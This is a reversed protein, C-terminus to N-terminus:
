SLTNAGQPVVNDYLIGCTGCVNVKSPGDLCGTGMSPDSDIGCVPKNDSLDRIDRRLLRIYGDEGWNPTWSNRVLWYNVGDEEGYGVAVVAHDILPDSANCGSYIGSEYAGFDADVSVAVPGKALAAMLDTYSNTGLSTYGTVQVEAPAVLISSGGSGSMTVGDLCEGNTGTYSNYYVQTQYPNTWQSSLGSTSTLYDIGVNVTAGYCGGTGGCEEPNPACSVIQQPSLDFLEGTELAVYSEIVATTAFAWCSGCKGQDKVATVVDADRWDVSKPLSALLELDEEGEKVDMKFRQSHMLARNLGRSQLKEGETLDSFQNIGEKWGLGLKNHEIVRELESNFIRERKLFEPSGRDYGRGFDKIFHAFTYSELEHWQPKCICFAILALFLVLKYFM